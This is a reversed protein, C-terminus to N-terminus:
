KSARKPKESKGKKSKDDAKPQQALADVKKSLSKLEERLDRNEKKLDMVETRLTQSENGPRRGTRIANIALEAPTKTPMEKAASAFSGLCLGDRM